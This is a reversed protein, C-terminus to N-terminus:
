TFTVVGVLLGILCFPPQTIQLLIIAKIAKTKVHRYILAYKYAHYQARIKTRM